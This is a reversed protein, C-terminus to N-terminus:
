VRVRLCCHNSCSIALGLTRRLSGVTKLRSSTRARRDNIDALAVKRNLPNHHIFIGFPAFPAVGGAIPNPLAGVLIVPFSGDVAHASKPSLLGAGLVTGAGAVRGLFARRSARSRHNYTRNM